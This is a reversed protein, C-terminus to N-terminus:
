SPSWYFDRKGGDICVLAGNIYEAQRSCLYAVLAGVEDPRCFRGLPNQTTVVRRQADTFGAILGTEIYGPAIANVTIGHPGAEKAFTRTFGVIGAKAASYNTVGPRGGGTFNMSSTNVIRGYGDLGLHPLVAQSCLFTSTLHSQLIVEWSKLPIASVPRGLHEGGAGANNVLIDLTGFAAVATAVIDPVQAADSVDGAATAAEFGTDRLQEATTDAAAPDLDNVVIRVGEEALARAEAQGIAGGGGTVLAVRGAIGLDM